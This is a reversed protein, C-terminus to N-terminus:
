TAGGLVNGSQVACSAGSSSVSKMEVYKKTIPSFLVASKGAEFAIAVKANCSGFSADFDVLIRRVGGKGEGIVTMTQGDFSPTRTPVPGGREGAVQENTGSGVGRVSNTLRSFVRGATSVYISLKSSATVEYFNPEGVHRQQRTEAWTLTVSKGKLQDPAGAAEARTAILLAILSVIQILSTM